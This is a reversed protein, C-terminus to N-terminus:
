NMINGIKKNNRNLLPLNEFHNNNKNNFLNKPKIFLKKEEEKKKQTASFARKLKIKKITHNEFNFLNINIKNKPVIDIDSKKQKININFQPIATKIRIKKEVSRHNIFNNNQKKNPSFNLHPLQNKDLHLKIKEESKKNMKFIKMIKENMNDILINSPKPIHSKKHSKHRFDM